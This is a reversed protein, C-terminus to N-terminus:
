TRREQDQLQGTYQQCTPQKMGKKTVPSTHQIRRTTLGHAPPDIAPIAPHLLNPSASTRPTAHEVTSEDPPHETQAYPRTPPWDPQSQSCRLATHGTSTHLTAANHHYDAKAQTHWGPEM